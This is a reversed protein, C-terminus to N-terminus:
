EGAPWESFPFPKEETAFTLFSVIQRLYSGMSSGFSALRPNPADNLLVIVFQIVTVVCLVTRCLQFAIGLLLMFLGRLWINRRNGSSDPTVNM